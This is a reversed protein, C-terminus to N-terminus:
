DLASGPRQHQHNRAWWTSGPGDDSKGESLARCGLGHSDVTM